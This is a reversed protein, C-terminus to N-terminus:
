KARPKGCACFAITDDAFLYAGASRGKCWGDKYSEGQPALAYTCASDDLDKPVLGPAPVPAAAPKTVVTVGANRTGLHYAMFIAIGLLAALVAVAAAIGLNRRSKMGAPVENEEHAPPRVDPITPREAAGGTGTAQDAAPPQAETKTAAQEAQALAEDSVITDHATSGDKGNTRTGDPQTTDPTTTM